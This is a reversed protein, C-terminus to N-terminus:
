EIHLLMTSNASVYDVKVHFVKELIKGIEEQTSGSGDTINFLPAKVMEQRNVLGEIEDVDDFKLGDTKMEEDKSLAAPRCPPLMEGAIENAQVRTKATLRMWQALAYFSSALDTLHLHELVLDKGWLFELVESPGQYAYVSAVTLRRTLGILCNPGYPNAIRALVLNLSRSSSYSSRDASASKQM